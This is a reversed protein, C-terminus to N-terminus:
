LFFNFIGINTHSFVCVSVTVCLFSFIRLMKIFLMRISVAFPSLIYQFSNIWRRRASYTFIHSCFIERSHCVVSYFDIVLPLALPLFLCLEGEGRRVLHFLNVFACRSFSSRPVVFLLRPSTNTCLWCWCIACQPRCEHWTCRLGFHRGLSGGVCVCLSLCHSHSHSLM